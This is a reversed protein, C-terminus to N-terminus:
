EWRPPKFDVRTRLVVFVGVDQQGLLQVLEGLRATLVDIADPQRCALRVHQGFTRRQRRYAFERDHSVVVANRDDAYVSVDDDTTLGDPARWCEHGANRLFECVGIDVDHDLVFRM